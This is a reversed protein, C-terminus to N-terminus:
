PICNRAALDRHVFTKAALYKMGEAIDTCIQILVELSLDKPLSAVDLIHTRKQKLYEKVSGNAMFPLVIYPPADPADLCVGLLSLVHSHQFDKMILSEAMFSDLQENSQMNKITKIAVQVGTMERGHDNLVGAFVKGFAGEGLSHKFQLCSYPIVFQCFLRKFKAIDTDSLKVDENKGSEDALSFYDVTNLCNEMDLPFNPILYSDPSTCNFHNLFNVFPSSHNSQKIADLQLRCQDNIVDLAYCSEPCVALQTGKQPHCPPTIFHCAFNTLVSGCFHDLQDSISTVIAFTESEDREAVPIYYPQRFIAACASITVPICQLESTGNIIQEKSKESLIGTCTDSYSSEESFYYTSVNKCDFKDFLEIVHVDNRTNEAFEHIFELTSDCTHKGHLRSYAECDVNCILLPAGLEPDCPPAGLICLYHEIFDLCPDPLTGRMSEVISFGLRVVFDDIDANVSPSQPLSYNSGRAQLNLCPHDSVLRTCSLPKNMGSGSSLVAGSVQM